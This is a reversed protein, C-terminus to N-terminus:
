SSRSRSYLLDERKGTIAMRGVDTAASGEDYTQMVGLRQYL